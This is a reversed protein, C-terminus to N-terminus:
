RERDPPKAEQHIKNFKKKIESNKLMYIWEDIDEVVIDKFKNVNIFYYEPFPDKKGKPIQSKDMLYKTQLWEETHTGYFETTDYYLYDEGITLDFYLISISLVKLM